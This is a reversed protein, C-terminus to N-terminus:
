AFFLSQIILWAGMAQLVIFVLRRVFQDPIREFNRQLGISILIVLPLALVTKILVAETFHGYVVGMMARSFTSLFFVALLTLRITAVSDPQRYLFYAIPAGAASYLGGFFGGLFGVFVASHSSSPRPWQAPKLMMLIGASMVMLGLGTKLFHDYTEGFRDLFLFGLVLSPLLGLSILGLLRLNIGKRSQRLVLLTNVMSIISIIATVELISLIGLAATVAVIILGMAFGTITQTVAAFAVILLFLGLTPLDM